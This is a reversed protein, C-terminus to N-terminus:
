HYNNHYEHHETNQNIKHHSNVSGELRSIVIKLKSSIQAATEKVVPNEVALMSQVADIAAVEVKGDPTESVVVNCPLLMLGIMNESTLAKFAFKPNCAGLTTYRHFDAGIKAKLTEDMNIRFLVGFGEEKLLGTVKEIAEEFSYDTTKRFYYDM